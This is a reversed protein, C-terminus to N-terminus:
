AVMEYKGMHPIPGELDTVAGSVIVKRIGESLYQEV